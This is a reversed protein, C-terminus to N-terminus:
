WKGRKSVDMIHWRNKDDQWLHPSCSNCYYHPYDGGLKEYGIKVYLPIHLGCDYCHAYRCNRYVIVYPFSGDLPNGFALKPQKKIM